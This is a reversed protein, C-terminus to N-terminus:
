LLGKSELKSKARGLRSSVTGRKVDLIESTADVTFGLGYVMMIVVRHDIDLVAFLTEVEIASLARDSTDSASSPLDHLTDVDGHRRHSEYSIHTLATRYCISYLWTKLQSGGRFTSLSRFAKEYSSQLVDDVDTASRVISWVMARLDPDVLRVFQGFAAVDGDVIERELTSLDPGSRETEMRVM